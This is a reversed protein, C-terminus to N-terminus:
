QDIIAKDLGNKIAEILGKSTFSAGAVVEVEASNRKIVRKPIKEYVIKSLEPMEYEKVIKIDKIEYEDTTVVVKIQGHHGHGTGEYSGKKYCIDKSKSGICMSVLIIIVIIM